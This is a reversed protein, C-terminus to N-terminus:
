SIVFMRLNRVILKIVNPGPGLTLCKVAMVYRNEYYALTNTVPLGKRGLENNAHFALFRGFHLVNRNSWELAAGAKGM